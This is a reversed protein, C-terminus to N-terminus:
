FLGLVVHQTPFLNFYIHGFQVIFYTPICYSVIIQFADNLKYLYNVRAIYAPTPKIAQDGNAMPNNGVNLSDSLFRDVLLTLAFM